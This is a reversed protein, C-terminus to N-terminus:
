RSRTRARSACSPCCSRGSTTTGPPRGTTRCMTPSAPWTACCSRRAIITPSSSRRRVPRANYLNGTAQVTIAQNAGWMVGTPLNVNQANVAATVQDVGIGRAALAQPNLAIRVAYKQQGWVSVESVGDVMSIRQAITTEGIEDLVSLPEVKSTLVMFLVPAAAPNQRFFSPPIIGTPLNVLAQSIGAQVDQAAANINAISTSSFRHDVDVGPDSSSTMNDIGAITSFQKELPTAVAAAM